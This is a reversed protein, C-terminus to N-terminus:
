RKIGVLRDLKKLPLSGARIAATASKTLDQRALQAATAIVFPLPAWVAVIRQYLASNESKSFWTGEIKAGYGSVAGGAGTNKFYTASLIFTTFGIIVGYDDRPEIKQASLRQLLAPRDIGDSDISVKAVRTVSVEARTTDNVQASVFELWAAKAAVGNEVFDRFVVENQAIVTPKAEKKLFGDLAHVKGTKTNVLSGIVFTPNVDNFTDAIQAENLEPAFQPLQTALTIDPLVLGSPQALAPPLASRPNPCGALLLSGGACALASRRGPQLSM